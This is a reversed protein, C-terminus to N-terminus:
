YSKGKSGTRKCTSEKICGNNKVERVPVKKTVDM